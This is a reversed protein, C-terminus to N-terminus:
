RPTWCRFLITPTPKVSAPHSVCDARSSYPDHFFVIDCQDASAEHTLGMRDGSCNNWDQKTGWDFDLTLYNDIDIFFQRLVSSFLVPKGLVSSIPSINHVARIDVNDIDAGWVVSVCLDCNCSCQSTLM